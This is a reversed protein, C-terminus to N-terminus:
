EGSQSVSTRPVQARAIQAVDATVEGVDGDGVALDLGGHGGGTGDLRAEHRHHDAAVVRHGRRGHAAEAGGVGALSDADDVDVGVEVHAVELMTGCLPVGKRAMM